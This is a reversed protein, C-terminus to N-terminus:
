PDVFLVAPWYDKDIGRKLEVGALLDPQYDAGEKFVKVAGRLFAM